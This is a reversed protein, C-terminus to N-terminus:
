TPWGREQLSTPHTVAGALELHSIVEKFMHMRIRDNALVAKDRAALTAQLVSLGRPDSDLLLDDTDLFKIVVLSDTKSMRANVNAGAEILSRVPDSLAQIAAECIATSGSGTMMDVNIDNGDGHKGGRWLMIDIYRAMIAGTESGRFEQNCIFAALPHHGDRNHRNLNVGRAVFHLLDQIIDSKQMAGKSQVNVRSLAHLATDQTRRDVYRPNKHAKVIINYADMQKLLKTQWESMQPPEPDLALANITSFTDAAFMTQGVKYDSPSLDKASEGFRNLVTTSFGYTSFVSIFFDAYDLSKQEAPPTAAQM